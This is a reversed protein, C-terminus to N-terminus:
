DNMLVPLDLKVKGYRHLYRHSCKLLQYGRDFANFPFFPFFTKSGVFKDTGLPSGSYLVCSMLWVSCFLRPMKNWIFFCVSVDACNIYVKNCHRAYSKVGM